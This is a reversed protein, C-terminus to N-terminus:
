DPLAVVEGGNRTALAPIIPAADYTIFHVSGDAFLFNAGSPHLSWFHFQDCPNSLQGPGFHFPPNCVQNPINQGEVTITDDPYTNTYWSGSELAEPPPREGVMLTQSTGDIIDALRIGPVPGLVGDAALRAGAVGLYSSYALTHGSPDLLPSLLRSDSPCVYIPVVTSLGVHPPNKSASPDIRCAEFSTLWLSYQDVQPLILVRWSLLANPDGPSGKKTPLPPLRGHMDHFHHLGIGIQKLNNACQLRAASQRVRQVAPLLLALLLGILGIVILLEVLSFAVRRSYQALM